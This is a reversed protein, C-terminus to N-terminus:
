HVRTQLLDDPDAETLLRVSRSRQVCRAYIDKTFYMKYRWFMRVESRFQANTVYFVSPTFSVTAVIIFDAITKTMVLFHIGLYLDAVYRFTAYFNIIQFGGEIVLAFLLFVSNWGFMRTIAREYFIDYSSCEDTKTEYCGLTASERIKYYLVGIVVPGFALVVWNIWDLALIFYLTWNSYENIVFKDIFLVGLNEYKFCTVSGQLFIELITSFAIVNLMPRINKFLRTVPSEHAPSVFPAFTAYRNFATAVVLHLGARSMFIYFIIYFVCFAKNQTGLLFSSAFFASFCIVSDVLGYSFAIKDSNTKLRRYLGYCWVIHSNTCFGIISTFLILWTFTESVICEHSFTKDSLLRCSENNGSFISIDNTIHPIPYSKSIGNSTTVENIENVTMETTM